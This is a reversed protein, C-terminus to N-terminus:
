LSIVHNQSLYFKEKLIRDKKGFEPCKICKKPREPSLRFNPVTAPFEPYKVPTSVMSNETKVDCWGAMQHNVHYSLNYNSEEEASPTVRNYVM